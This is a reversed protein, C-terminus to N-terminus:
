RKLSIRTFIWVAKHCFYALQNQSKFWFALSKLYGLSFKKFSCIKLVKEKIELNMIFGCDDLCYLISKLVPVYILLIFYGYLPKGPPEPTFFGGAICSGCTQDSLQSSERSSPMTVWKLIRAQLIGHASSGPLSCDMSKCLTPCSQLLTTHMCMNWLHARVYVTLQSLLHELTSWYLITIAVLLELFSSIWTPFQAEVWKVLCIFIFKFNIVSRVIFSSDIFNLSSPLSSNWM